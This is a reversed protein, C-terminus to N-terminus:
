WCVPRDNKSLSSAPVDLTSAVEAVLRGCSKRLQRVAPADATTTVVVVFRDLFRLFDDTTEFDTDLGRYAEATAKRWQSFELAATVFEEHLASLHEPPSLKSLAEHREVSFSAIHEINEAIRELVRLSYDEVLRVEEESWDVTEAAVDRGGGYFGGLAEVDGSVSAFEEALAEMERDWQLAVEALQEQWGAQVRALADAYEETTLIREEGGGCAGLILLALLALIAGTRAGM